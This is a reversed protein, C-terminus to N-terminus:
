FGRRIDFARGAFPHVFRPVPQAHLQKLEKMRQQAVAYLGNNTQGYEGSLRAALLFILPEQYEPPLNIDADTTAYEALPKWSELHLTYAKDPVPHLTVTGLPFTPNYNLEASIGSFSKDFIGAYDQNAVVNLPYDNGDDRLYARLIRFPRATDLDGGTGITYAATGITLTFSEKVEAHIGWRQSSLWLLMANLATLADAMEEPQPSSNADYTNNLRLASRILADVTM